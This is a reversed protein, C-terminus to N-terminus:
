EGEPPPPPDEEDDPPPPVGEGENSDRRTFDTITSRSADVRLTAEWGSVNERTKAGYARLVGDGKEKETQNLTIVVDADRIPEFTEAANMMTIVGGAEMAKAGERGAQQATWVPIQYTGGIRRLGKYLAGHQLRVVGEHDHDPKLIAGYDVLLLDPTWGDRTVWRQIKGELMALTCSQTPWEAIRLSGGAEGLWKSIRAQAGKRNLLIESKPMGSILCDYRIAVKRASVELTVHAVKKGMSLAHKGFNILFNTKHYGPLALLIGMEGKGLGRGDLNEDIRDIGTPTSEGYIADLSGLRDTLDDGYDFENDADGSDVLNAENVKAVWEDTKGDVILEEFSAAAARLRQVKAFEVTKERVYRSDDPRGDEYIARVEAEIEDTDLGGPCDEATAQLVSPQSPVDSTSDYVQFAAQAIWRYAEDTFYTADLTTRLSLFAERDCLLLRLISRQFERPFNFGSM